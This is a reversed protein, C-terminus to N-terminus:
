YTSLTIITIISSLYIPHPRLQQFLIGQPNSVSMVSKDDVEVLVKHGACVIVEVVSQRVPVKYIPRVM